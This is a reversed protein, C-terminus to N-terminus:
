RDDPPAEWTVDGRAMVVPGNRCEFRCAAANRRWLTITCLEQPRLPALFKVGDIRVATCGPERQALLNLVHQLLMVGPVVPNGPFHGALAPHDPALAFTASIWPIATDTM